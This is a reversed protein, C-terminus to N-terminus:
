EQGSEGARTPRRRAALLLPIGMLAALAFLGSISSDPVAFGVDRFYGISVYSTLAVWLLVATLIGTATTPHRGLLWGIGAITCLIGFLLTLVLVLVSQATRLGLFFDVMSWAVVSVGVSSWLGGLVVEILRRVRM